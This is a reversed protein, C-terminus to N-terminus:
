GLSYSIRSQFLLHKQCLCYADADKEMQQNEAVKLKLNKNRTKFFAM